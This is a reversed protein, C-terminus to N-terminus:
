WVWWKGCLEFFVVWVFSKRTLNGFFPHKEAPVVCDILAFELPEAVTLALASL